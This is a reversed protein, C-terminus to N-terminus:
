KPATLKITGNFTDISQDSHEIETTIAASGPTFVFSGTDCLRATIQFTRDNSSRFTVQNGESLASFGGQKVTLTVTESQTYGFGVTGRILVSKGSDTITASTVQFPNSTLPEAAASERTLLTQYLADDTPPQPAPCSRVTQQPPQVGQLPHPMTHALSTPNSLFAGSPLAGVQEGSVMFLLTPEPDDPVNRLCEGGIPDIDVYYDGQDTTTTGTGCLTGDTAYADIETGAPAPAGALTLVGYYRAAILTSTDAGASADLGPIATGQVNPDVVQNLSAPNSLFAGDRKEGVNEGNVLFIIDPTADSPNQKVCTGAITQIDVEYSGNGGVTGQGCVITAPPATSVVATITTGAPAPLTGIELTGVYRVASGSQARAPDLGGDRAFARGLLVCSLVVLALVACRRM